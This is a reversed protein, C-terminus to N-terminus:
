AHIYRHIYILINIYLYILILIYKYVYTCIISTYIFMYYIYVEFYSHILETVRFATQLLDPQKDIPDLLNNKFQQCLFGLVLINMEQEIPDRSQKRVQQLCFIFVRLSPGNLNSRILM